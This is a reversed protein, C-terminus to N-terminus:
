NGALQPGVSAVAVGVAVLTALVFLGMVTWMM